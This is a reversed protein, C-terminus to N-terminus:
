DRVLIYGRRRDFEERTIVKITGNVWILQVTRGKFQTSLSPPILMRGDPDVEVRDGGKPSTHLQLGNEVHEIFWEPHLKMTKRFDAPLILRGRQDVQSEQMGVPMPKEM